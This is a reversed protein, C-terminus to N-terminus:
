CAYRNQIMSNICVYDYHVFLITPFHIGTKMNLLCLSYQTVEFQPYGSTARQKTKEKKKKSIKNKNEAKQQKKEDKNNLKNHTETKQQSNQTNEKRFSQRM